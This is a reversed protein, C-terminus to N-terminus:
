IGKEKLPWIKRRATRQYINANCPAGTVTQWEWSSGVCDQGHGAVLGPAIGALSQEGSVFGAHTLKPATSMMRELRWRVVPCPQTQRRPLFNSVWQLPMSSWTYCQALTIKVDASAPQNKRVAQWASSQAQIANGLHLVEAKTWIECFTLKKYKPGLVKLFLSWNGRGFTIKSQPYKNEKWYWVSQSVKEWLAHGGQPCTVCTQIGYKNCSASHHLKGWNIFISM